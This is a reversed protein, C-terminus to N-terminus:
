CCHCFPAILMLGFYETIFWYSKNYIPMFIRLLDRHNCNGFIALNLLLFVFCYFFTQFWLGILAKWRFAVKDALYYGTIFVYCNVAVCSVIWVYEMICYDLLCNISHGDFQCLSASNKVGHYCYHGSLILLMSIVRLLEISSNRQSSYNKVNIKNM